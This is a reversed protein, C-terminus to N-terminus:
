GGGLRYPKQQMDWSWVTKFKDGDNVALKEVWIEHSEKEGTVQVTKTAFRAKTIKGLNSLLYHSGGKSQLPNLM